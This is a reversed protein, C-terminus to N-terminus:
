REGGEKIKKKFERVSRVFVVKKGDARELECCRVFPCLGMPVECFACGLSSKPIEVCTYRVGKFYSREGVSMYSKM